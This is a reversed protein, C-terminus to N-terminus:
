RSCQVFGAGLARRWKEEAEDLRTGFVKHFKRTFSTKEACRFFKRYKEWGFRRILFATFSCAAQYHFFRNPESHFKRTSLLSALSVNHQRLFAKTLEEFSVRNPGAELWTALGENLLVPVESNWRFAFLHAIEHRATRIVDTDDAILVVNALPLAYGCANARCLETIVQNKAFLFIVVRWRLKLGFRTSFEDLICELRQVLIPFLWKEELEPAYLLRIRRTAITRFGRVRAPFRYLWGLSWIILISMGGCLVSYTGPGFYGLLPFAITGLWPILAIGYYPYLYRLSLLM